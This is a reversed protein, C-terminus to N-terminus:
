CNLRYEADVGDESNVILLLQSPTSYLRKDNAYDDSGCISGCMMATIGLENFSERHHKDGLLIYELDIGYQKHFLTSLIKPSSQVTDLDGHSACFWHGCVSFWIFENESEDPIIINKFGSMRTRLWWGVIREMNDRHINDNKNQVTRAHNGYTIYVYTKDVSDSLELISQALIESVEMLQDCTLEDSAVRANTHIAGHILDGLIVIHLNRCKHLKIRKKANKVTKKIREICIDSDFKNFVNDTTMGYHWDSFVLVADNPEYSIPKSNGNSPYMCGITESLNQAANYLSSFLHEIRGETAIIKNLERRQDQFRQKEKQLEFKKADIESIIDADTIGSISEDELLDLTMKSGYMCRRAVDPSYDKGYVYKALEAYDYDALTKDSLKGYVLRKHWQFDTEDDRKLLPNIADDM